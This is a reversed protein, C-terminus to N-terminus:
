SYFSFLPWDVLNERRNSFCCCHFSISYLKTGQMLTLSILVWSGLCFGLARVYSWYVRSAISGFAFKEWNKSGGEESPDFVESNDDEPSFALLPEQDNRDELTDEFSSDPISDVEGNSIFYAPENSVPWVPRNQPTWQQM